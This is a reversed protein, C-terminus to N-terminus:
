RQPCPLFDRFAVLQFRGKSAIFSTIPLIYALLVSSLCKSDTPSPLVSLPAKYGKFINGNEGAVFVVFM